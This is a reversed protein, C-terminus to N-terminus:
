SNSNFIRYIRNLARKFLSGRIKITSNWLQYTYSNDFKGDLPNITSDSYHIPYFYRSPYIKRDTNDSKQIIKTLLITGTVKFAPKRTITKLSLRGIEDICENLIPHNPICGIVGNAIFGPRKVENEYAAFFNGKILDNFSKNCKSDADIYIGGYDYLKEYRIIDSLKPYKSEGCNDAYLVQDYKKQNILHGINKETWLIYKWNTHKDIVTKMLDTPMKNNDGLWIQHIIRPIVM